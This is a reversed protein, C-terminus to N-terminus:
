ESVDAVAQLFAGEGYERDYLYGLLESNPDRRDQQHVKICRGYLYDFTFGDDMDALIIAAEKTTMVHDLGVHQAQLVGMGIVEAGNYLRALLRAADVSRGNVKVTTIV